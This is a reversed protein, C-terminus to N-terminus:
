LATVRAATDLVPLLARIANYLARVDGSVVAEKGM